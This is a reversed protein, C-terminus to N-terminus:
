INNELEKMVSLRDEHEEKLHNCMQIYAETKHAKVESIGADNHLQLKLQETCESMKELINVCHNMIKEHLRNCNELDRNYAYRFFKESQKTLRIQSDCMMRYFEPNESDDDIEDRDLAYFRHTTQCDDIVLKLYKNFLTREALTPRQSM